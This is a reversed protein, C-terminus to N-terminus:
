DPKIGLEACFARLLDIEFGENRGSTDIFGWPAQSIQVGARLVGTSKLAAVSQARAPLAPVLLGGIMATLITRRPLTHPPKSLDIM